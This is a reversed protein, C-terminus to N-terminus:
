VAEGNQGAWGQLVGALWEREPERLSRGIEIRDAGMDVCLRQREGVRDLRFRGLGERRITRPKQPFWFARADEWRRNLPVSPTGPDHYIGESGFVLLEPRRVVLTKLAYMAACGGLTWMTLWIVMFLTGGGGPGRQVPVLDLLTLLVAVEGAAWGCLWVFLFAVPFWRLWTEKASWRLRPRGDDDVDVIFCSNQPPELVKTFAEGM